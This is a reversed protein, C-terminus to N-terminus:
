HQQNIRFKLGVYVANKLVGEFGKYAPDIM